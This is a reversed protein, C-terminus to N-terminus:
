EDPMTTQNLKGLHIEESRSRIGRSNQLVNQQRTLHLERPM